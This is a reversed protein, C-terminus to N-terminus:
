DGPQRNRVAEYTDRPMPLDNRLFRFPDDTAELHRDLAARLEALQASRSADAILNRREGPDTELDYLEETHRRPSYFDWVSRLRRFDARQLELEPIVFDFVNTCLGKRIYKFRSTRVWRAPDYYNTYNKEGFVFRRGGEEGRAQAAFSQGEIGAPLPLELLDFLTPLVDIHATLAGVRRGAPLLGPARMQLAVKVGGDYVSAKGHLFSAGHDTTFLVITRDSLGTEDLADLLRGFQRDLFAICGYFDVLDERIEPIDPMWPPVLVRDRDVPEYLEHKFGSPNMGIRHTEATGVGIFFPGDTRSRRRGRLWALLEDVVHDAHHNAAAHREQYGLSEADYHEHQFGFLHTRYGHARLLSPLAPRRSVDLAWGRHVLGMLGNTHPYCGTVISGRSPSCVTGQSFHRECVIGERAFREFSPTSTPHGYTSLFDGLDHATFLIVNTRPM